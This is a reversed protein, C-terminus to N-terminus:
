PRALEDLDVEVPGAPRRAANVAAARARARGDEIERATEYADHAVHVARTVLANAEPGELLTVGVSVLEGDIVNADVAVRPRRIADTIRDTGDVVAAALLVASLAIMAVTDDGRGTFVGFALAAIAVVLPTRRHMLRRHM